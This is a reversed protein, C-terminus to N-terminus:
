APLTFPPKLRASLKAQLMPNAVLLGPGKARRTNFKPRNGHLDVTRAGAEEAILVGAAVDWEWTDRLTIMADFRGQAVLCLRYALSARFHRNVPLEGGRWNHGAFSAKAGLVDAGELWGKRSSAIPVGNLEAGNGSRAAFLLDKEPLYVVGAVPKGQEVIALSHAFTKQGETFARTGDIPDVVFVRDAELRQATDPTEESLWGYGPRAATLSDRLMADIELDAETVPGAGGSKEWTKFGDRVYRSAIEGAARAADILLSLESNRAPL